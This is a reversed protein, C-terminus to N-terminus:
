KMLRGFLIKWTVGCPRKSEFDRCVKKLQSTRMIRDTDYNIKAGTKELMRLFELARDFPQFIEQKRYIGPFASALVSSSNGEGAAMATRWEPFNDPAPITFLLQGGPKLSNLLKQLTGLPAEFWHFVMGGVILDYEGGPADEEADCVSWRVASAAASDVQLTRQAERLMSSSADTIELQADPYKKLLHQTLWGTGCGIEWIRSAPPFSPLDQALMHAIEKQVVAYEAYSQAHTDFSKLAKDKKHSAM